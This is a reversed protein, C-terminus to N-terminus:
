RDVEAFHARQNNLYLRGQVLKFCFDKFDAELHSVTWVKYNLECLERNEWEIGDRLNRGALIARPDHEEYRKSIKGTVVNRYRRCGKRLGMVFQELNWNNITAPNGVGYENKIRTVAERLRFYQAWNLQFGVIQNIDQRGKIQGQLMLLDGVTVRRVEVDLRNWVEYGFVETDVSDGARGLTTNGFVLAELVNNGVEYFKRKFTYWRDLVYRLISLNREEQRISGIRDAEIQRGGTVLIGTYDPKDLEKKWRGIWTAKISLELDKVDFMNYGGLESQLFLRRRELPRDTGSIFQVMISNITDAIEIGLPLLNMIYICQSLIYTKCVMVRGTISLGFTTWYGCLKRMKSIVKHWNSDLNELKRDIILGLINVKEVVEIGGVLNNEIQLDRGTIMLQTKNRNLQLGSVRYFNEMVDLIINVSNDQMRFIVTLDDAYAEATLKEIDINAIKEKIFNCCNIGNGEMLNLKILLIEICIIFIYPSSRDGQPTGRCINFVGSYGGEVIIRAKRDKLITKVMNVMFEGFNFFELCSTIARHEISDFAKSFDVCLVGMAEESEWSQSICNMINMACTHIYKTKLFDKQARGIIKPLYKELRKAVVGSIIKYGCNLLTIPRWDEVKNADGKKPILKILGMKFKETLEGREFTENAMRLMVPGILAWYKKIVTFSIGDWGSTSGFNSDNLSEVLEGMDIGRELELKEEMTLKRNQVWDPQGNIDGLFDEISFLIDLKKKYLQEYYMRIHENRSKEDEFAAGNNNKITSQDDHVGGEKSLRCFAKTAKENNVDLFEKFKTAREKLKIDDYRLLKEREDGVQMSNEGFKEEFYRIREIILERQLKAEIGRQKQLAVLRNKIGMTCVEYLQRFDCSFNRNLLVEVRPLRSCVVNINAEITLNRERLIVDDGRRMMMKAVQEKERVLLELQGIMNSLDEDRLVLHNNLADYM